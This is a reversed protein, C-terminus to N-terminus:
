IVNISSNVLGIDSTVVSVYSAGGNFPKMFKV